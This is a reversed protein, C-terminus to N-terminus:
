NNSGSKGVSAECSLSLTDGLPSGKTFLSPRWGFLSPRWGLLSPRWGPRWGVYYRHGGVQFLEHRSSNREEEEAEQEDEEESSDLIMVTDTGPCLFRAMHNM